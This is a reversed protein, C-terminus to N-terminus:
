PKTAKEIAARASKIAARDENEYYGSFQSYEKLVAKLAELLDPASAILRANADREECETAHGQGRKYSTQCDVVAVRADPGMVIAGGDNMLQRVPKLGLRIMDAIQAEDAAFERFEWPGPTHKQETM